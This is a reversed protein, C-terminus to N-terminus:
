SLPHMDKNVLLCPNESIASTEIPFFSALTEKGRSQAATDTSLRKIIRTIINKFLRKIESLVM